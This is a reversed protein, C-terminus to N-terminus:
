AMGGQGIASPSVRLSDPEKLKITELYPFHTKLILETHDRGVGMIGNTIITMITMIIIRIVFM